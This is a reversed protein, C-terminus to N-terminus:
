SWASLRGVTSHGDDSATDDPQTSAPIAEVLRLAGWENDWLSRDGSVVLEADNRNAMRIATAFAEHPSLLVATECIISHGDVHRSVPGKVEGCPTGSSTTFLRLNVSDDCVQEVYRFPCHM